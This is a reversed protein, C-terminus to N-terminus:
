FGSYARNFALEDEETWDDGLEAKVAAIAAAGFRQAEAVADQSNAVANSLSDDKTVMNKWKKKWIGTNADQEWNDDLVTSTHSNNGGGVANVPTGNGKGVMVVSTHKRDGQPVFGCGGYQNGERWVGNQFGGGNGYFVKPKVKERVEAEIANKLAEDVGSQLVELDMKELALYVPEYVDVRCLAEGKKNAVLSLMWGNGFKGATAQDTGSWFVGMNAHSHWWLKVKDLAEGKEVLDQIFLAVAEPDLETDANTCTQHLLFLDDIYFNKDKITVIGLGSIEGTAANVYLQLKQRLEPTIYVKPNAM